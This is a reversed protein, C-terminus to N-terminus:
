WARLDGTLPEVLDKLSVIGRPRGSRDIVVAMRSRSRRMSRLAEMAGMEGPLLTAATMLERTPRRPEVLADLAALIGCVRGSRDLVPFRSHPRNRIIATRGEGSAELPVTSVRPWPMMEGEITRRRMTLARDVMSAQEGTVVGAGTGERILHSIRQAATPGISAKGGILRSALRGALGLLPVVGTMTLTLRLSVLFGSFRYTWQDTFTRFLDKPLIEGLVLLTPVVVATNVVVAPGPALGSRELLVAVSLTGLYNVLNNGVLLSGLLHEPHGLERQLRLASREGRGARVALRVRNITYLGIELGSFVASAGIGVVAALIWPWSASAAESGGSAIAAALQPMPPLTM